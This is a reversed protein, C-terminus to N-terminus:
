NGGFHVVSSPIGAMFPNVWASGVDHGGIGHNTVVMFPNGPFIARIVAPDSVELQSYKWGQKGRTKREKIGHMKEGVTAIWEVGDHRFVISFIRENDNPVSRNCWEAFTGYVKEQDDQTVAPVFFPPTEM